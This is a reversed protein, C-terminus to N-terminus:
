RAFEVNPKDKFKRLNPYLETDIEDIIQQTPKKWKLTGFVEKLTNKRERM